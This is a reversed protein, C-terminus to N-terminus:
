PCAPVAKCCALAPQGFAPHDRDRLRKGLPQDIRVGTDPEQRGASEDIAVQRHRVRGRGTNWLPHV